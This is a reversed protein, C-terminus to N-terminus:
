APPTVGEGGPGVGQAEEGGGRRRLARGARRARGLTARGSQTTRCRRPRPSGRRDRSAWPRPATEPPRAAANTGRGATWGARWRFRARRVGAEDRQEDVLKGAAAQLLGTRDVERLEDGVGEPREGKEGPLRVDIRRADGDHAERLAAVPREAAAADCRAGSRARRERPPPRRDAKRWRPPRFARLESGSRPRPRPCPSAPPRSGAAQWPCSSTRSEMRGPAPWQKSSGAKAPPLFRAPSSAVSRRRPPRRPM